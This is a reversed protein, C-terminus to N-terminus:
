RASDHCGEQKDSRHKAFRVDLAYITLKLFASVLGFFSYQSPACADNCGQLPFVVTKDAHRAYCHLRYHRECDKRIADLKDRRFIAVPSCLDPVHIRAIKRVLYNTARSSARRLFGIDPRCLRCGHVISVDAGLLSLMEKVDSVSRYMDPDITMVYNAGAISLGSDVAAVHGRREPYWVTRIKLGAISYEPVSEQSLWLKMDDVIIVEVIDRLELSLRSLERLLIPLRM